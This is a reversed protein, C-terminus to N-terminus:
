ACKAQEAALGREIYRDIQSQPIMRRRGVKVSALEKTRILEFLTTRGIGGLRDRTAEIDRLKDNM